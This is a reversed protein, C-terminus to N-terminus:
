TLGKERFISNLWRMMAFLVAAAVLLLAFNVWFFNAKDEYGDWLTALVGSLKNGLSTALQWGGMMLGTLHRPAMKSVMSLGMPSLFLEGITVVGYTGILWWSSAKDAGNHAAYCAWVMVLSSLASVLLGWGIKAPTTPEKGRRRLWSFFFIVVPTLVIVFFPNISQYLETSILTLSGGDPPREEPPVNLFYPHPTVAMAPKGDVKVKRFQEDYQPFTDLATSVTQISGLGTAVPELVPSVTRDTYFEAWTTLATGNQKFVAWFAVVILYISLLARIPRKDEPSAKYLTYVYFGVVPLAGFLFADTSDSGFISGPIMWALVGTIIAPLLVSSLLVGVGPQGSSKAAANGHPESDLAAGTPTGAPRAARGGGFPSPGADAHAYHRMGLLFVVVGIFMGVGAAAFAYGWGYTNRLYAAVFNCVLAGINIGMYFINYGTDKLARYREENYLNGLLVSINPKFFGNGVIMLGLAAWFTTMNQPVALLLYGAGMLLGGLIISLRYGLVRDALLGGIFPTLYVLAIFTGYIDSATANTMAFGGTKADTMYLFFIGIMLYYGFREWMETFFLYPLGSPHDRM